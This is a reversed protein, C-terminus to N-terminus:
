GDARVEQWSVPLRVLERGDAATVTVEAEGLYALRPPCLRAEVTGGSDPLPIRWVAGDWSGGLMAAAAAADGRCGKLTEAANEAALVARDRAANDASHGDAWVFARLCLAAAAAFVLVMLAQELLVLTSRNRM